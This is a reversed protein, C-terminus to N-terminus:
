GFAVPIREELRRAADPDHTPLYVVRRNEALARIKALTGAAEGADPSVGDVVGDLMQREGYSTDGALFIVADGEVVAVSIHHPTHGPTPLAIVDGAKTLARSTALPGFPKAEFSLPAPDFGKPWRNPLYGLLRGSLGSARKIEGRSALIKAHTFHHLGADHDIHMHTLILQRVDRAGVGLARLQPGAQQEPEIEFQVSRQFYPHWRPLSNLHAAQGTDVVIVGEPHEIAWAYTPLWDSWLTDILPGAQRLFGRGRGEVQALRVKVRGTQIAHIRM